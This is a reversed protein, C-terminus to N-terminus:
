DILKYIGFELLEEVSWNKYPLAYGWEQLQQLSHIGLRETGGPVNDYQTCIDSLDDGFFMTYHSKEDYLNGDPLISWDGPQEINALHLKHEDSIKGLPKKPLTVLRPVCTGWFERGDLYEGSYHILPEKSIENIEVGSITCIHPNHGQIECSQCVNQSLILFRQQKDINEPSKHPTEM